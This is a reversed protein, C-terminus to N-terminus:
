GVNSADKRAAKHKEISYGILGIAVSPLLVFPLFHGLFFDLALLDCLKGAIPKPADAYSLQNSVFKRSLQTARAVDDDPFASYLSVVVL